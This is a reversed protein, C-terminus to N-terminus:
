IAERSLAGVGARIGRLAGIAGGGAAQSAARAVSVTGTAIPGAAAATAALRIASGAAAFVDTAALSVAGTAMSAAIAPIRTALLWFLLASVAIRIPVKFSLLAGATIFSAWRSALLVGVGVILYLAFLKIGIAIISALFRETIASTGRFPAFAFLFIGAGMVVYAEVLTVAMEVAIWAFAAIVVFSSVVGVIFALFNKFIGWGALQWLMQTAVGLGQEFVQDPSLKEIGSASAGVAVFSDIIAPIWVDAHLLFAYAFSIFFIKKFLYQALTDLHHQANMWLIFSLGVEVAALKWFLDNAAPFMNFYWIGRLSEYAAIVGGEINLPEPPGVPGQAHSLPIWSLSFVGVAFLYICFRTKMLVEQDDRPVLCDSAVVAM